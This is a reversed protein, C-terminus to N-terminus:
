GSEYGGFLVAATSEIGGEDLGDEENDEKSIVVGSPTGFSGMMECPADVGAVTVDWVTVDESAFSTFYMKTALEFALIKVTFSGGDAM